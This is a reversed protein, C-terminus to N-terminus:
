LRQRYNDTYPYLSFGQGPLVPPNCLEAPKAGKGRGRDHKDQASPACDPPSVRLLAAKESSSLTGPRGLWLPPNTRGPTRHEAEKGPSASVIGEALIASGTTIKQLVESYARADPEAIIQLSKLSSGDNLEIFCIGAKSDRKTRVWGQVLVEKGMYGQENGFLAAIRIGKEM